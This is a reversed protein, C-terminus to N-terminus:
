NEGICCLSQNCSGFSRHQGIQFTGKSSAYVTESFKFSSTLSHYLYVLFLLSNVFRADSGEPIVAIYSDIIFAVFEVAPIAFRDDQLTDGLITALDQLFVM